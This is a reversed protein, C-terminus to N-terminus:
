DERERRGCASEAAVHVVVRVHEVREAGHLRQGDKVRQIADVDVLHRGKHGPMLLHPGRPQNIITTTTQRQSTHNLWPVSISNSHTLIYKNVVEADATTERKKRDKDEKYEEEMLIAAAPSDRRTVRGSGVREAGGRRLGVAREGAIPPALDVRAERVAHQVTERQELSRVQDVRRFRDVKDHPTLHAALFVTNV